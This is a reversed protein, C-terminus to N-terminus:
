RWFLSRPRPQVRNGFVRLDFAACSIMMAVWMLVLWAVAHVNFMADLANLVDVRGKAQADDDDSELAPPSTLLRQCMQEDTTSAKPLGVKASQSAGHDINALADHLVDM